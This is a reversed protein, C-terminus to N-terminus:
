RSDQSGHLNDGLAWYYNMQFTYSSAERDNIYIKGDRIDLKNGEYTRIIREYIPYNLSTLQISAGKKPIWLPGYNDRTWHHLEDYPFVDTSSDIDPSIKQPFGDKLMKERAKWTLLMEYENANGLSRVDEGNSMDLGYQTKMATEDLPQGNTVVHFYTESAPPWAQARGNIYLVEDRIELTDGATAICRKLYTERKNVPRISLPYDDPNALVIRRGSDADGRGLERIVDYYPRLSQYEPLDIVTDGVPFHFVIIDGRKIPLYSLKNVLVKGGHHITKEMAMTPISYAGFVFTRVLFWCAFIIVGVSVWILVTPSRKRSGGQKM